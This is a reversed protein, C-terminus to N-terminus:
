HCAGPLVSVWETELIGPLLSCVYASYATPIKVQSLSQPETHVNMAEHTCPQLHSGKAVEHMKRTLKTLERANHFLDEIGGAYSTCFTQPKKAFIM